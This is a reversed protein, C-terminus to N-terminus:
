GLETPIGAPKFMHGRTQVPQGSFSLGQRSVLCPLPELGPELTFAGGEPWLSPALELPIPDVRGQAGARLFRRKRLDGCGTRRALLLRLPLGRSMRRPLNTC